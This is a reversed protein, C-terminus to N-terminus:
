TKQELLDIYSGAILQTASIGLEQMIEHAEGEGVKPDESEALIVELELFHGLSEVHDIHIRTRGAMYLQRTKRVTNRIGFAAELVVKLQHPRDTELMMYTSTKPGAQDARDYFILQGDTPSLFRLKLRGHPVNFFIDEQAIVEPPGGSLSAAFSRQEEVNDLRVKIEVNRPM